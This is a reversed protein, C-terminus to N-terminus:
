YLVIQPSFVIVFLLSKFFFSLITAFAAYKFIM